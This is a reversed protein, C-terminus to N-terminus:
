ILKVFTMKIEQKIIFQSINPRTMMLTAKKIWQLAQVSTTFKV